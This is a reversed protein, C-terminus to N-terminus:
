KNFEEIDLDLEIIYEYYNDIPHNIYAFYKFYKICAKDYAVSADYENDYYGLNKKKGDIVIQAMWRDKIKYVGKYKNVCDERKSRNMNNQQVTCLRLNNDLNNLPDNDKHDVVMDKPADIIYRHLLGYKNNYVYGSQNLYWKIDKVKDVKNISISTRGVEMGEKDTLVIYAYDNFEDMIIENKDFRTHELIHGYRKHQVYHKNCYGLAKHKGNCGEVKCRKNM